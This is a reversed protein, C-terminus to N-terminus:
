AAARREELGALWGALMAQGAAVAVPGWRAHDARIRAPDLGAGAIDAADNALWQEFRADEGMEAHFQLALAHGGVAFAQDYLATRALLTAGVPLDFTDGHWHLVPVGALVALPGTRGADTLTVPAFGVERAPGKRVRAGLAAAMLQAGLCVGLTPLGAALRRAILATELTLWPHAAAEYAGMPGGMVVLLDPALPDVRALGPECAAAGDIAYGAAALPARYGAIGEHAVHRIVLARKM